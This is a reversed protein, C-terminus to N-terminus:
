LFYIYVYINVKGTYQYDVSDFNFYMNEDKITDTLRTVTCQSTPVDFNYALGTLFDMIVDTGKYGNTTTLRILNYDFDYAQRAVKPGLVGVYSQNDLPQILQTHLEFSKPM